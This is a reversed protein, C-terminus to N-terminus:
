TLKLLAVRLYCLELQKSLVDESRNKIFSFVESIVRAFSLGLPLYRVNPNPFNRYRGWTPYVDSM